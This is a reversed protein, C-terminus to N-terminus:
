GGAGRGGGVVCELALGVVEAAMELAGAVFFRIVQELNQVILAVFKWVDKCVQQVCKGGRSGECEGFRIQYRQDAVPIAAVALGVRGGFGWVGGGFQMFDTFASLERAIEGLGGGPRRDGGMAEGDLEFGQLLGAAFPM